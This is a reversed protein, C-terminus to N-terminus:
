NIKEFVIEEVDRSINNMFSNGIPYAHIINENADYTLKKTYDAIIDVTIDDEYDIICLRDDDSIYYAMYKYMSGKLRCLNKAYIQKTGNGLISIFECKLYVDEKNNEFEKMMTNYPEANAPADTRDVMYVYKVDGAVVSNGLFTYPMIDDKIETNRVEISFLYEDNSKTRFNYSYGGANEGLDGIDVIYNNKWSKPLKMKFYDCTYWITENDEYTNNSINQDKAPKVKLDIKEDRVNTGVGTKPDVSYWDSTSIHDEFDDYLHISVTGDKNVESEVNGPRYGTKAEYYDLAMQELEKQSFGESKNENEDKNEENNDNKIDEKENSNKNEEAKQTGEKINNIITNGKGSIMMGGLLGLILVLVLTIILLAITKGKETKKLTNVNEGVQNKINNENNDM